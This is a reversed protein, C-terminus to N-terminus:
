PGGLAASPAAAASRAISSPAEPRMALWYPLLQAFRRSASLAPKKILLVQKEVCHWSLFAFCGALTLSTPLHLWWPWVFPAVAVLTQQIPFGYLYMGYSYDAGQVFFLKRPNQVGLFITLYAAPMPVLFTLSEYWILGSILAACGLALLPSAPVLSRSLYIAVGFLFSLVLIHGAAARLIFDPHPNFLTRIVIAATGVGLVTLLLRPRKHLTLLGLGSIALYCELEHPVTWLQVNVIRPFPNGAFVGPLFYHINGLMNLLYRGFEPHRFYDLLPLSTLSTGLLVASLLVEVSLAPILRLARLTL